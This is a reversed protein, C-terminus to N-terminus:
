DLREPAAPIDGDIIFGRIDRGTDSDGVVM